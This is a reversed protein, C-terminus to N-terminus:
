PCGGVGPVYQVAPDSQCFLRSTNQNVVRGPGPLGAVSNIGSNGTPPICFVAAGIPAVPDALGSAVITRDFCERSKQLRCAGANIGITEAACDADGLCGIFGDGNARVVGDCYRDVPGENCTGENNADVTCAGAGACQNARPDGFGRSQCNGLGAAACDVNSNCPFTGDGSCIGCHCEERVFPPFGCDVDAFLSVTDTTQNLNVVLGTGSVNKGNDPFCDLSHGDGGPAPFTTSVADADCSLGADEGFRCIGDRVGDAPVRDGECYPCPQILSQGLYVISRLRVDVNGSGADVNVRGSVNQSFRNVVCAPTNGASLPLPPGLYCACLQGGCDNADNAFPQDCVRRNDNVCRCIGNGPNLGIINCEGCPAQSAACSLNGLLVQRDNVDSDHAIGTWGTDLQTTTRCRAIAPDCAGVACDNNNACTPGVGAYLTLEGIGPCQAAAAACQCAPSCIQGTATCASANAGDCQEGSDVVGDGCRAAECNTRCANPQTNSNAAGNDCEEVGARVIGDGCVANRCTATCADTAILNGDDCQEGTDVVGDGCGASRCNTRCANPTTNSNAAGNDCQEVGQRVIGDGCVAARCVATCADTDIVNGDDCQEGTDVVNDGCRPLKCNTRCSDPLTNSNASGDDCEEGSDIQGNGCLLARCDASCASGDPPDCSESFPPADDVIGDGCRPLQCTGARCKNPANGNEPGDDCQENRNNVIGDGCFEVGCTASCGDGSLRNGDDCDEPGGAPGSRCDLAICTIGDGCVADKCNSLCSDTDVTNGDDCEEVGTREVGDGCRALRCNNLCADTQIANGDDCEEVGQHVVGDGCRAVTCDNRCSDTEVSNGDDCEEGPDVDGDGCFGASPFAVDLSRQAFTRHTDFMCLKLDFANFKGGTEDTCEDTYGLFDVNVGACTDPIETLLAVYARLVRQNTKDDATGPGYPIMQRRCDWETLPDAADRLLCASRARVESRVVKGGSVGVGNVCKLYHAPLRLVPPYELALMEAVIGDNESVICGELDATEFAGGTPDPCDGPYGLDGLEVGACARSVRRGVRSRIAELEAERKADGVGTICDTALPATGRFLDRFCRQHVRHSVTLYRLNQRQVMAQCQLEPTTAALAHSASVVPTLGLVIGLIWDLGHPPSSPIARKM